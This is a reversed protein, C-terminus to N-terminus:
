VGARRSRTMVHEVNAAIEEAIAARRRRVVHRAGVIMLKDATADAELLALYERAAVLRAHERRLRAERGRLFQGLTGFRLFRNRPLFNSPLTLRGRRNVVFPKM